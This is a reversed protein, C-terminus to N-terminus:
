DLGKGSGRGGGRMGSHSGVTPSTTEKLEGKKYKVVADRVTGSAVTFLKISTTALTQYANPGLHGTILVEVGEGAVLQAAQIGAGGSAMWSKNPIVKFTMTESDVILFFQCRGFRPDLQANMDEGISSVAIKM